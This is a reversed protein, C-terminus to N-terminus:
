KKNIVDIVAMGVNKNIADDSIKNPLRVKMNKNYADLVALGFPTYAGNSYKKNQQADRLITTPTYRSLKKIFDCDYFDDDYYKVFLYVGLLLNKNRFRPCDSWTKQILRLARDLLYPGNNLKYIRYCTDLPTKTQHTSDLGSFGNKEIINLIESIEKNGSELLANWKYEIRKTPANKSNNLEFYLSAEDEYSLGAHIRAYIYKIGLLECLKVRHQGDVVWLEGGRLSVDIPKLLRENFAKSRELVKQMNVPSQYPAFRLKAISVTDVQTKKSSTNM